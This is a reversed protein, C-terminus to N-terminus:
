MLGGILAKLDLGSFLGSPVLFLPLKPLEVV